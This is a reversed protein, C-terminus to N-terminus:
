RSIIYIMDGYIPDSETAPGLAKIMYFIRKNELGELNSDIFAPISSEGITKFDREAEVKRFIRYGRVWVEPSEKWLLFVRNDGIVIRLDTPALPIYDELKVTIEESAPGENVIDTIVISRIRYHVPRETSVRDIYFGNCVPKQNLLRYEEGEYARYIRYCAKRNDWSLEISDEKISFRIKRPAEPLPSPSVQIEAAEGMIGKTNEAIVRYRYTADTKIANDIYSFSTGKGEVYGIRVFERGESKLTVFGKIEIKRREPYSWSLTLGREDHIAKLNEVREPKVIVEPRLPAKRGCASFSLLCLPALLSLFTIIIAKRM